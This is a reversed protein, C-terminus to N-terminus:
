PKCYFQVSPQATKTMSMPPYYFVVVYYLNASGTPVNGFAFGWDPGSGGSTGLYTPDIAVHKVGAVPNMGATDTSVVADAITVGM